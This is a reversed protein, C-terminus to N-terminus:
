RAPKEKAGPIPNPDARPAAEVNAGAIQVRDNCHPQIESGLVLQRGDYVTGRRAPKM